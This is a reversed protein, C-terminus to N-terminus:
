QLFEGRFLRDVEVRGFGGGMLFEHDGEFVGVLRASLPSSAAMTPKTHLEMSQLTGNQFIEVRM